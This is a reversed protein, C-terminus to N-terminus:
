KDYRMFIKKVSNELDTKSGNNYIFYDVLDVGVNMINESELIKVRRNADVYLVLDVKGRAIATRLESDCRVGSYIDSEELVKEILASENGQEKVFERVINYLYNRYLTKKEALEEKSGVGM